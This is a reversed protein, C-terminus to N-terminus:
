WEFRVGFQGRRNGYASQVQGFSGVEQPDCTSGAKACSPISGLVPDSWHHRNFIDFFEARLSARYRGDSGFAFSKNISFDENFYSWSTFDYSYLPVNGFEGYPPNEWAAYSYMVSNLGSFTNKVDGVKRPYVASWGPYNNSSRPVGLPLGSRYRVLGGLQWGGVLYNLAGTSNAWPKGKGFPLEWVIYGKVDHRPIGPTVFKAYDKYAYPNEYWSYMNWSESWAAGDTNGTAKQVAYNLNAVLGHSYRKKFEVVFARYANSGVPTGVFRVPNSWHDILQPFPSIAAYAPYVGGWGGVTNVMFPYWPVGAAQATGEDWIWDGAHGSNLLPMYNELTPYNRPDLFGNHLRSGRNGIYSASLVANKGIQYEVGLNWNQVRGMKLFNPDISVTGGDAYDPHIRNENPDTSSPTDVGGYITQDWNFAVANPAGATGSAAVYGAKSENFLNYPLAGWQNLGLPVYHMGWSGRFVLKPVAQWSAGVYPAFQDYFQNREWSDSASSAYEYAGKLPGWSKNTGEPNWNTWQGNYEHYRTNFEWRLGANVTLTPTVKISDNVFFNLGNRGASTPLSVGHQAKAVDGLLMNALGYGIEDAAGSTSLNDPVGTQNSFVYWYNRSGGSDAPRFFVLEGGFKMTHRGKTWALSDRLHWQNFWYTYGYRSGIRETGVWDGNTFVSSFDMMPFNDKAPGDPVPFGLATNDVPHTTIEDSHYNNYALSFTNIVHPTFIHDDVFRLNKSSPVKVGESSLPGGDSSGRSWIGAYTKPNHSYNFSASLHNKDGFNHDVKLDLNHMKILPASADYYASYLSGYNNILGSNEPMYYQRYLDIVKKSQASIRDPPIINGAFPLGTSPDFITGQLLPQGNILLPATSSGCPAVTGDQCLPSGLLASFDGNLMAETPVTKTSPVWRLDTQDYYEYAGFIFTKNRGDYLGPIYVPGGASFGWDKYRDKDKRKGEHNNMWSNANLLENAMLGFASGHFKNTGSKLTYIFAGGGTAFSDQGVVTQVEFEQVAEMGPPPQVGQIGANYDTGDVVVAKTTGQSGAISTGWNDGQVTAVTAFALKSIDRGGAVSLPLIKLDGGKMNTGLTATETALPSADAEVTVMESTRGVGLRADLKLIQGLALSINARDLRQFSEKAFTISYRGIPLNLLTYLGVDNSVTSNRVGTDVNTATVGVGPIVAGSPDTVTGTITARDSQAWLMGALVLQMLLGTLLFRKM